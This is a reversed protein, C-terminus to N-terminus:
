EVKACIAVAAFQSGSGSPGSKCYYGNGSPYGSILTSSGGQSVCGGGVVKWGTTSPGGPSPDCSAFNGKPTGLGGWAFITKLGGVGAWEPNGSSSDKCVELINNRFRTVGKNADNCTIDEDGIGIAGSRGLDLHARPTTIGIGIGVKGTSNIAIDATDDGSSLRLGSANTNYESWIRGKQTGTSHQFIIDGADNALNAAGRLILNYSKNEGQLLLFGTGSEPATEPYLSVLEQLNTNTNNNTYFRLHNSRQNINWHLNNINTTIWSISSSTGSVSSERMTLNNAVELDRYSGMPSPYYTTIIIEEQAYACITLFIILILFIFIRM